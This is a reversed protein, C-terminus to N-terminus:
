IPTRCDHFGYRQIGRAAYRRPIPLQTALLPMSRHFATDFCVVQPLNPFRRQLSEILELERPLHEPDFPVIKKLEAMLEVTVLEPTRRAMGHVV